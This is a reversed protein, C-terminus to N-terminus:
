GEMIDSNTPWFIPAKSTSSSFSHLTGLPDTNPPLRQNAIGRGKSMRQVRLCTVVEIWPMPAGHPPTTTLHSESATPAPALLTAQGVTSARRPRSGHRQPLLLLSSHPQTHHRPPELLGAITLIWCRRSTLAPSSPCASSNSPTPAWSAVMGM